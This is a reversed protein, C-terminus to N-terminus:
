QTLLLSHAFVQPVLTMGVPMVRVPVATLVHLLKLAGVLIERPILDMHHLALGKEGM